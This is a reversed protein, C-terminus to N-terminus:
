GGLSGNASDEHADHLRVREDLVVGTQVFQLRMAHVVDLDWAVFLLTGGDGELAM